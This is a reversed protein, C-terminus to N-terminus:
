KYRNLHQKRRLISDLLLLGLVINVCLLITITNGTIVGTLDPAKVAMRPLPTHPVSRRAVSSLGAAFFSYITTVLLSVALLAAICKIIVPNIYSRVSPTVQVQAIMDMVNRGFRMSPEELEIGDLMGTHFSRLEEYKSKWTMDTAIRRTIDERAQADCTDDIYDWLLAEINDREEM